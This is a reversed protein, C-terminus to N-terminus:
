LGYIHDETFVEFEWGRRKCFNEAYKWKARNKAYTMVEETFKKTQKLPKKPPLTQSKPKVEIMKTKVNGNKDKIKVLFDPFYRRPKSGPPDLPSRYHVVVEESQWELVEPHHDFWAMLRKEWSSRYVIKTSDGRYKKPNKPKFLGQHYKSM